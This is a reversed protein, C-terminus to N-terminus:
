LRWGLLLALETYSGDQFASTRASQGAAVRRAEVGM